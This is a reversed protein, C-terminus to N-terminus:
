LKKALPTPAKISVTREEVIAFGHKGIALSDELIASRLEMM